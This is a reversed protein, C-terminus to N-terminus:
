AFRRLLRLKRIGGFLEPLRSAIMDELLIFQCKPGQKEGVPVLRPLVFPVQVVGMM